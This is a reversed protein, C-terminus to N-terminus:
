PQRQESTVRPRTTTADMFLVLNYAQKMDPRDMRNM